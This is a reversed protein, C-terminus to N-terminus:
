FGEGLSKTISGWKASEYAVCMSANYSDKSELEISLNNGASDQWFTFFAAKGHRLAYALLTSDDKFENSIQAYKKEPKGYKKELRDFMQNWNQILDSGSETYYCLMTKQLVGESIAIAVRDINPIGHNENSVCLEIKDRGVGCKWNANPFSALTAEKTKGFELGAYGIIPVQQAALISAILVAQKLV